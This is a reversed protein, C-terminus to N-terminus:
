TCPVVNLNYRVATEKGGFFNLKILRDMDM